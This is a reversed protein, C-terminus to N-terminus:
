RQSWPSIILQKGRKAINVDGRARHRGCCLPCERVRSHGQPESPLSGKVQESFRRWADPSFRLILSQSEKTDRVLVRNGTDAVEICNGSNDGSYSSKRWNM